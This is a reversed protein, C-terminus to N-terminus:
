APHTAAAAIACAREHLAAAKEGLHALTDAALEDEGTGSRGQRFFYETKNLATKEERSRLRSFENREIASALTADDVPLGLFAATGRLAEAPNQLMAEYSLFHVDGPQADYFELALRLHECWGDIMSRCFKDPGAAVLPRLNDYRLHFHFYSILADAPQRVIYVLPRGRLSSINHSKIIRSPLGFAAPLPSDLPDVHIDPVLQSLKEPEPLDPKGLVILDRVLYRLWTNGSRPYSVLFRDEPRLAALKEPTILMDAVGPKRGSVLSLLRHILNM